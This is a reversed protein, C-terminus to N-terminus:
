HGPDLQKPLDFYNGEMLKEHSFMSSDKYKFIIFAVAAVTLAPLVVRILIFDLKNKKTSDEELFYMVSAIIIFLVLPVYFTPQTFFSM